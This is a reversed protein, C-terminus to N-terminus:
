KPYSPTRLPSVASSTHFKAASCNFLASIPTLPSIALLLTANQQKAADLEQKAYEAAEQCERVKRNPVSKFIIQSDRARKLDAYCQRLWQQKKVCEENCSELLSAQRSRYDREIDRYKQQMRKLEPLPINATCPGVEVRRTYHTELRQQFGYWDASNATADRIARRLEENRTIYETKALPIGYRDRLANDNQLQQEGAQQCYYEGSSIRTEASVPTVAYGHNKCFESLHDMMSHWLRNSHHILHGARYENEYVNGANDTRMYGPDPLADMYRLALVIIHVHIHANNHTCVVVRCGCFYKRAFAMGYAHALEPTLGRDRDGPHFSIVYHHYTCTNRTTRGFIRLHDMYYHGAIDHPTTNIGDIIYAEAADTDARVLYDMANQPPDNSRYHKIIGM